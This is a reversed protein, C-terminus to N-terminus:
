REHKRGRPLVIVDAISETDTPPRPGATVRILHSRAAAFVDASASAACGVGAFSCELAGLVRIPVVALRNAKM